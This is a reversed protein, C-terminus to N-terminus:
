LIVPDPNPTFTLGDTTVTIHVDQLQASTYVGAAIGRALFTIREQLAAQQGALDRFMGLQGPSLALTVPDAM